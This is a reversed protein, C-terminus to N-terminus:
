QEEATRISDPLEVSERYVATSGGRKGNDGSGAERSQGDDSIIAAVARDSREGDPTEQEVNTEELELYQIRDRRKMVIYEEFTIDGYAQMEKATEVGVYRVHWPEYIYGTIRGKDKPYRIIFGYDWCHEAVWIGEPSEGIAEVLGKDLMSQGKFDMALGTQHESYGPKAVSSIRSDGRDRRDYIAKQTSYSRYGSHAYLKIGDQLAADFMTELAAAADPRMYINESVKDSSPDVNPKVLMLPVSPARNQKNVLILTDTPDQHPMIFSWSEFVLALGLVVGALSQLM